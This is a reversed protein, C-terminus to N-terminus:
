NEYLRGMGFCVPNDPGTIFREKEMGSAATGSHIACTQMLNTEKRM